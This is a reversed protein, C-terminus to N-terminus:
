NGIEDVSVISDTTQSNNLSDEIRAKILAAERAAQMASQARQISDQRAQNEQEGSENGSCSIMSIFGVVILLSEIKIRM